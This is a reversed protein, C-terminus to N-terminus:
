TGSSTASTGSTRAPLRHAEHEELWQDLDFYYYQKSGLMGALAQRHIRRDDEALSDPTVRNYFDDAEAACSAVTQDFAIAADAVPNASLRLRAVASGRAPVDLVYHAAAKTGTKAPNVAEKRGSVVYDHFADKVYPTPNPQNWLRSANSENETFLLASAGECRLTYEGLEPHAALIRGGDLQRLVPRAPDEAWAWTNRFW